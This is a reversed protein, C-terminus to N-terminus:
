KEEAVHSSSVLIGMKRIFFSLFCPDRYPRQSVVSMWHDSEWGAEQPQGPDPMRQNAVQCQM